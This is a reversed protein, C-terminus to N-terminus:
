VHPIATIANAAIQCNVEADGNNAFPTITVFRNNFPVSGLLLNM